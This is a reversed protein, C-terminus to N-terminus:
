ASIDADGTITTNDDHLWNKNFPQKGDIINYLTQENRTIFDGVITRVLLSINTNLVGTLETLVLMQNHTLRVTIREKTDNM